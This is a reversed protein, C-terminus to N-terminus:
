RYAKLTKWKGEKNPKLSELLGKYIIGSETKYEFLGYINPTTKGLIVTQGEVQKSLEISVEFNFEHTEPVFRPRELDANPIDGNEAYANAGIKQITVQSKGVSSGFRIKELPYEQLCGNIFWSHKMLLQVPSWLFNFSTEPSFMGVPEFELVDEWTKLELIDTIGKKADFCFIHQDYSYDTTPHTLKNRRRVIEPGYTDLRYKTVMRYQNEEETVICTSFNAMTNTEELGMVEEYNGGKESGIEISTYYYDNKVSRKLKTVPILDDDGALRVTVNQSFFEKKDEVIILENFGVKKIGLGVNETVMFHDLAENWTSSLPKFLDDQNNFQRIWHGHSIFHYAGPGDVEYGRDVRGFYKSHFNNKNGTIIEVFRELYEYALLGETLTPDYNSDEDIQLNNEVNQAFCRVGANIDVYMDAKLFCELALSEGEGLEIEGSWSGSMPVSFAPLVGDVEHPLDGQDSRLEALVIRNAPDGLNYNVGNVYKTLCVQYICYEVNEYQQFYADLSFDLQLQLQRQRDNNAYFMMGTSGVIETGVTNPVVSQAADHSKSFLNLPLGVTQERTNGANSEVEAKAEPNNTNSDFKSILYIRRGKLELQRTQLEDIARGDLDTTREIEIKEKGRAKLLKELGGSNFKVSVENENEETWTMLDLFGSYSRQWIDDQDKVDKVLRINANIGFTAKITNIYDRADDYFKLANSFKPFVGSDTKHRALEKEDNNWGAIQSDDVELNGSKHMFTYRVRDNYTPNINGM